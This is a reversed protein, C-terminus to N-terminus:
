GGDPGRGFGDYSVSELCLGHPPAPQAAGARTGSRIRAVLDATTARGRGVQVLAGVMSRVMQHCFSGAAVEFRLLTCPHETWGAETVRRVIPEEATTGPPRRCFARFDHEGVLADAASAMARLDLPDPVHWAVRALLPEPVPAQHVLYRYRRGTASRRADFGVPAPEARRVVVAPALQRNLARALDLRRPLPEPLDVHVVQGRAHVGADTRGACVLDPPGALRAARALAESLAGAVTAAGPQAAFGRFGSGDYAVLLRWRRVGTPETV